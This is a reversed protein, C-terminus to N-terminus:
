PSRMRKQRAIERETIELNYRANPNDGAARFQEAAEELRGTQGLLIGLNVRADIHDPKCRIAERFEAAAEVFRNERAYIMATIFHAQYADPDNSVAQQCLALAQDTHQLSFLTLALQAQQDALNPLPPRHPVYFAASVRYAVLLLVLGLTALLLQQFKPTM